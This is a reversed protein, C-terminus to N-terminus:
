YPLLQCTENRLWVKLAWLFDYFTKKLKNDSGSIMQIKQKNCKMYTQNKYLIMFM